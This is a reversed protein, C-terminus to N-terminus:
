NDCRVAAVMSIRGGEGPMYRQWLGPREVASGAPPLLPSEQHVAGVGNQQSQATNPRKYPAGGRGRGGGRRKRQQTGEGAM